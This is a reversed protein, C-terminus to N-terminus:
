KPSPTQSQSSLTVRGEAEWQDSPEHYGGYAGADMVHCRLGWMVAQRALEHAAKQGEGTADLDLCLYLERVNGLRDWPLGKTGVLSAAPFDSGLMALADFPGETLFLSPGVLAAGHFLGRRGWVDHRVDKPAKTEPYAPDIARSYVGVLEGAPMELPFAVRGWRAAVPRGPWKGPPFYGLGYERALELPICRAKLYALAETDELHRRAAEMNRNRVKLGEADKQPATRADQSSRFGAGPIFKSTTPGSSSSRSSPRSRDRGSGRGPPGWRNGPQDSLYGWEDCTYCNYRGTELDLVLSRQNDSGHFPCGMREKRGASVEMPRITAMAELEARTYRPNEVTM